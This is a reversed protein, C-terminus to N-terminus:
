TCKGYLEPNQTRLTTDTASLQEKMSWPSWCCYVVHSTATHLACFGPCRCLECCTTGCRPPSIGFITLNIAKEFGFAQLRFSRHWCAFLSCFVARFSMLATLATPQTGPEMVRAVRPCSRISILGVGFSEIVYLVMYLGAFRCCFRHFGTLARM